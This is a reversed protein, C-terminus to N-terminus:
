ISHLFNLYFYPNAHEFNYFLLYIKILYKKLKSKGILVIFSFFTSTIGTFYISVKSILSFTM